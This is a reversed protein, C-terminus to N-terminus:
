HMMMMLLDSQIRVGPIHVGPNPLGMAPQGNNKGHRYDGIEDRHSQSCRRGPYDVRRQRRQKQQQEATEVHEHQGISGPPAARSAGARLLLTMLLVIDGESMISPLILSSPSQRPSISERSRASRLCATGSTTSSHFHRPTGTHYQSPM